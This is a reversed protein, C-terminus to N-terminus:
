AGSALRRQNAAVRRRYVALAGAAAEHADGTALNDAVVAAADCAACAKEVVMRVAEDGIDFRGSFARALRLGIVEGSEVALSFADVALHLWSNDRESTMTNVPLSRQPWNHQV